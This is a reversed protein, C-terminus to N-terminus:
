QTVRVSVNAAATKIFGPLDANVFTACGSSDCAASLPDFAIGGTAV